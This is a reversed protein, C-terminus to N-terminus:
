GWKKKCSPQLTKPERRGLIKRTAQLKGLGESRMIHKIM